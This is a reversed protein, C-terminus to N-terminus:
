FLTHLLGFKERVATDSENSIRIKNTGKRTLMWETITCTFPYDKHILNFTCDGDFVCTVNATTLRTATATADFKM